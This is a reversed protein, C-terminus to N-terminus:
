TAGKRRRRPSPWSLHRDPWRHPFAAPVRSVFRLVLPKPPFPSRRSTRLRMETLGCSAAVGNHPELEHFDPEGSKGLLKDMEALSADDDFPEPQAQTASLQVPADDLRDVAARNAGPILHGYTDVTIQISSHGLQEKVYVVSEGHQLLLSAFTHRLDHIRIKRLEAKLLMRTFVHQVNREELAPGQRSPFVWESMEVGKKLCRARLRRRWHLLAASLQQSMDVRRRQHSKPSTLIGRVLNQDVLIFGGHFDVAQWRLALLEGLRLGTRLAFLIWPHWRPFHLASIAVLHAAEERTL